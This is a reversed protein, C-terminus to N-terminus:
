QFVIRTSSSSGKRAIEFDLAADLADDAPVRHRHDDLLVLFVGADAAVDRGIGRHGRQHLDAEVVEEARCNLILGADVLRAIENIELAVARRADIRAGEQFPTQRKLLDFIEAVFQALLGSQRRIRM